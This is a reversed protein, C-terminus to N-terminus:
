DEALGDAPMRAIDFDVVEHGLARLAAAMEAGVLGSSGTILTRM